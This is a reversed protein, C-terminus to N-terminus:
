RTIAPRRTDALSHAARAGCLRGAPPRAECTYLRHSLEDPRTIIEGDADMRHIEAIVEEAIHEKNAIWIAACSDLLLPSRM